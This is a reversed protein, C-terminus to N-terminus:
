YGAFKEARISEKAVGAERLLLEMSAVMAPAGALYYVPKKLDGLHRALLERTISGREGSWGADASVDTMTSVLEFNANAQQLSKLEDLFAASEPTRNSYVLVLRHKVGGELADVIMSRFPTVGIGGTLFVAPRAGDEHLALDGYPGEIEVTAGPALGRLAQKFTSDGLRTAILLESETPASALSFTRIHGRADAKAPEKLTVYVAQGARFTFGEPKAIRLALTGEALQDTGIVRAAYVKAKRLLSGRKWATAALGDRMGLGLLVLNTAGAVLELAQVGYFTTDFVGARAKSALFLASPILILLGNAAIFPMRKAKAGIPGTKQGKALAFGSAGTGILAPVLLLFGWPIATKLAVVAAHSGFVETLTTSLWFTAITLFAVLGAIPHIVRPMM